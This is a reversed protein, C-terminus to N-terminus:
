ESDSDSLCVGDEEEEEDNTDMYDLLKAQKLPDKKKSTSIESVRETEACYMWMEKGDVTRGSNNVKTNLMRWLIDDTSGECHLYNVVTPFEQGIRHNRDEVQLHIDPTFVLECVVSLTAATLTVGTGMATM